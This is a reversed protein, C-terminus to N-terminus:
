HKDADRSGLRILEEVIEPFPLVKKAGGRLYAEKPMGYVVATEESEAITHAGLKRLAVMGDAGDDGIGTLLVAIISAPDMVELASFFMEDVSPIFFRRSINPVLKCTISGGNKAFHLHYGGKAIIIKGPELPEGSKAEVVRLRSISNLREAFRATFSTPMHQAVCVPYPYDAPLRRAITEILGPGGTSAGVLLVRRSAAPVFSGSDGSSDPESSPHTGKLKSLIVEKIERISAAFKGPRTLYIFRNSHLISFAEGDLDSPAIILARECSKEAKRLIAMWRASDPEIDILAIRYSSSSLKRLAEGETSATDTELGLEDAIGCLIRRAIASGSVVLAKM